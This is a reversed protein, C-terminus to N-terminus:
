MQVLIILSLVIEYQGQCAKTKRLVAHSLTCFWRRGVLDYLLFSAIPFLVHGGDLVKKTASLRRKRHTELLAVRTDKGREKHLHCHNGRQGVVVLAGLVLM